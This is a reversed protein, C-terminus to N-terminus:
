IGLIMVEHGASALSAHGLSTLAWRGRNCVSRLFDSSMKKTLPDAIMNTGEVWRIHGCSRHMEDKLIAVDIATRKDDVQTYTCVLKSLCDFLSKSDM